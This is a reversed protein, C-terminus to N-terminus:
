HPAWAWLLVPRDSPLLNAFNAQTSRGLDDVVLDPLPNGDFAAAPDLEAALARGGIPAAEEAPTSAEVAPAPETAPVTETAPAPETAGTSSATVEDPTAEDPAVAPLTEDPSAEVAPVTQTGAEAPPAAVDDASGGCAAFMIAGALGTALRTSRRVFM